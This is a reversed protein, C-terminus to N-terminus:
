AHNAMESPVDESRDGRRCRLVPFQSVLYSTMRLMHRRATSALCKATPLGMQACGVSILVCGVMVADPCSAFKWQQLTQLREVTTSSPLCEAKGVYGALATLTPNCLSCGSARNIDSTKLEKCKYSM